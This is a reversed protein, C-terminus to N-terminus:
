LPAPLDRRNFTWLALGYGLLGVGYLVVPMPVPFLPQGGNWESLSKNWHQGLIIRWAPLRGPPSRGPQRAM